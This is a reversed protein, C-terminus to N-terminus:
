LRTSYRSCRSAHKRYLGYQYLVVEKDPQKQVNASLVKSLVAGTRAGNTNDRGYYPITRNNSYLIITTITKDSSM